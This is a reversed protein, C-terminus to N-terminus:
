YTVEAGTAAKCEVQSCSENPRTFVHNSLSGNLINSYYFQLFWKSIFPDLLSHTIYTTVFVFLTIVYIVTLNYPEGHSFFPIGALSLFDIIGLPGRPILSLRNMSAYMSQYTIHCDVIM